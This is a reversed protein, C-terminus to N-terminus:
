MIPEPTWSTFPTRVRMCQEDNAEQREEKPKYEVIKSDMSIRAGEMIWWQEVDKLWIKSGDYWYLPFEHVWSGCSIVQDVYILCFLALYCSSIHLFPLLHLLEEGKKRTRGQRLAEILAENDILGGRSTNVKTAFLFCNSVTALFWVVNLCLMKKKRKKHKQFCEFFLYFYSKAKWTWTVIIVGKKMKEIAAADIMRPTQSSSQLSQFPVIKSLWVQQWSNYTYAHKLSSSKM